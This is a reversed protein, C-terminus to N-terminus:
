VTATKAVALPRRRVAYVGSLALGVLALSGPEPASGQSPGCTSGNGNTAAGGTGGTSGGSLTDACLTATFSLLKFADNNTGDLGHSTASGTYTSILWWSSYKDLNAASHLGANADFQKCTGGNVPATCAAGNTKADMSSVLSWSAHLSSGTVDAANGDWRYISMDASAETWGVQLSSLNVKNSGFSILMFEQSGGERNATGAAFNDFAHDPQNAESVLGGSSQAATSMAGMGNTSGHDVLNIQVFSRSVGAGPDLDAGVNSYAKMTASITGASCTIGAPSGSPDCASTTALNWTGQASAGGSALLAAAAAMIWRTKLTKM